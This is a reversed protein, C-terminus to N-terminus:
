VKLMDVVTRIDKNVLEMEEIELYHQHEDQTYCRQDNVENVCGPLSYVKIKLLNLENTAVINIIYKTFASIM